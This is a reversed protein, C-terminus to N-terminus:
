SKALVANTARSAAARRSAILRAKAARKKAEQQAYWKKAEKLAVESDFREEQRFTMKYNMAAAVAMITAYQPRKTEGNFWNYLTSRSVGSIEHVIGLKKTLHEKEVMQRIRGIVPDKGMDDFESYNRYIKIDAM